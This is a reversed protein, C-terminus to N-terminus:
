EAEKHAEQLDNLRKKVRELQSELYDAQKSLFDKENEVSKNALYFSSYGRNAAFCNMRRLGGRGSGRPGYCRRANGANMFGPMEFGACFGLGRGTMPGMGDPGTRDGRPM